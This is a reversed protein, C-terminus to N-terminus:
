QTTNVWMLCLIIHLWEDSWVITGPVVNQQIVPLLTAAFHDLVARVIGLAPTVSTDVMGFVWYPNAPARGRSPETSSIMTHM